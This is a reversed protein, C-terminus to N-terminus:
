LLVYQDKSVTKMPTIQVRANFSAIVEKMGEIQVSQNFTLVALIFTLITLGITTYINIKQFANSPGTKDLRKWYSNERKTLNNNTKENVPNTPPPTGDNSMHRTKKKDSKRLDSM